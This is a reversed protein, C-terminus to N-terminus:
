SLFFFLSSNVFELMQYSIYKFFRVVVSWLQLIECRYIPISSNWLSLDSNFFRVVISWFRVISWFQLIERCILISSDWLSLDSIIFIQLGIFHVVSWRYDCNWLSKFNKRKLEHFKLTRCFHSLDTQLCIQDAKWVCNM